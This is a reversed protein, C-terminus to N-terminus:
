HNALHNIALKVTLKEIIETSQKRKTVWIMILKFNDNSRQFCNVWENMIILIKKILKLKLIM